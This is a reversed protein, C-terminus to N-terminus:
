KGSRTVLLVVAFGGLLYVGYDKLFKDFNFAEDKKKVTAQPPSSTNLPILYDCDGYLDVGNPLSRICDDWDSRPRTAGPVTTTHGVQQTWRALAAQYAWPDNNYDGWQPIPITNDM